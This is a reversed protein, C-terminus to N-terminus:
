MFYFTSLPLYLINSGKDVTLPTASLVIGYTSSVEKMTNLVQKSNKRGLGVEIPIRNGAATQLMIDAHAEGANYTFSAIRKTVFERYMFLGVLDELLFGKRTEDTSQVGAIQNFTARIAPSMFLYKRPKSVAVTSSGRAPVEILLETKVLADLLSGLVRADLGLASGLNKRSLVDGGDALLFLLPQVANLTASDFNYAKALDENVIRDILSIIGNYVQAPNTENILFPLSGTYM